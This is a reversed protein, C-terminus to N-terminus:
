ELRNGIHLNPLQSLTKEAEAYRRRDGIEKALILGENAYSQAEARKGVSLVVKALSLLTAVEAERNGVSCVLVLAQKLLVEAEAFNELSFELGGLATLVEAEYLRSGGERFGRLAPELLERAQNYAKQFHRVKGLFLSAVGMSGRNGMQRALELTLGAVEELHEYNGTAEAITCLELLTFLEGDRIQRDRCFQLNEAIVKRAEDYAEEKIYVRALWRMAGWHVDSFPGTLEANDFPPRSLEAAKAFFPLAAQYSSVRFLAHGWTLHGSAISFREGSLQGYKIAEQSVEITQEYYNQQALFFAQWALCISALRLRRLESGTTEVEGDPGNLCHLACSQMAREGEPQLGSIFYFRWLAFVSRELQPLALNETAWQWALRINDIEQGIELMSQRLHDSRLGEERNGLFNLFYESHKAQVPVGGAEALKEWAFQRLLEHLEFRNEDVRVLSKQVLRGLLPLQVGCVTRAAEHTFDGRFVSLKIYGEQEFPTLLRWSYDFVAKISQQRVPLDRWAAELFAPSAEIESAITRLPLTELWAAALELALPMGDALRCIRLVAELNEENLKFGIKVRRASLVFLRVAPQSRAEKLILNPNYPLGEVQYVTESQLQLRERSTIVIQIGPAAELLQIIYGAGELLHEFNDLVLLAKKDGLFRLVQQWPDGGSFSLGLAAAIALGISGPEVLSALSIFFINKGFESVAARAIEIALRTKGMGGVGALTLLRTEKQKLLTLLTIVDDERGVFTTLPKPLIPLESTGPSSEGTSRSVLLRQYLAHTEADPAVGLGQALVRCCAEYQVLAANRNGSLALGEIRQRWAPECWEDLELQRRAYNCVQEYNQRRRYIKTLVGFIFLAPIKMKM